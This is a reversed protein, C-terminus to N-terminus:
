RRTRFVTLVGGFGGLVFLVTILIAPPFGSNVTLGQAPLLTPRVEPAPPTFTPLRGAGANETPADDTALVAGFDPTTTAPLTPTPPPIITPIAPDDNVVRVFERLVWGANDPGGLYVIKLWDGTPNRGIIDSTQGPILVGVRDFETAPGARVTVDQYIDVQWPSATPNGAQPPPNAALAAPLRAWWAAFLGFIAAFVLLSLRRPM